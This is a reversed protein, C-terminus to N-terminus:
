FVKVKFFLQMWERIADTDNPDLDRAKNLNFLTVNDWNIMSIVTILIITNLIIGFAGIATGIIGMNRVTKEGGTWSIIGFATGIVAPVLGLGAAWFSVVSVASLVISAIALGRHKNLALMGERSLEMTVGTDVFSEERDPRGNGMEFSM